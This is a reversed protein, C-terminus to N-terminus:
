LPHNPPVGWKLFGGFTADISCSHFHSLKSARNKGQLFCPSNHHITSRGLSEVNHNEAINFWWCAFRILGILNVLIGIEPWATALVVEACRGRETASLDLGRRTPSRCVQVACPFGVAKRYDLLSGALYPNSSMNWSSPWFSVSLSTFLPRSRWVRDVKEKRKGWFLSFFYVRNESHWWYHRYLRRSCLMCKLIFMQCKFVICVYACGLFGASEKIHYLLIYYQVYRSAFSREHFGCNCPGDM